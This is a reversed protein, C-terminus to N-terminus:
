FTYVDKNLKEAFQKGAIEQICLPVKIDIFLGLAKIM